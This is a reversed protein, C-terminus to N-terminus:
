KSDSLSYMERFKAAGKDFLREHDYKDLVKLMRTRQEQSLREQYLPHRPLSKGAHTYCKLGKSFLIDMLTALWKRIAPTSFTMIDVTVADSESNPTIIGGGACPLFRVCIMVDVRSTGCHDYITSELAEVVKLYDSQSTVVFSQDFADKETIAVSDKGLNPHRHMPWSMAEYLPICRGTKPYTNRFDFLASNVTKASFMRAMPGGGFAKDM